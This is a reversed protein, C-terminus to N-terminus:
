GKKKVTKLLARLSEISKDVAALKGLEAAHVPLVRAEQLRKFEHEEKKTLKDNLSKVLLDHFRKEKETLVDRYDAVRRLIGARFRAAGKENLKVLDRKPVVDEVTGEGKHLADEVYNTLIYLPMRKDIARLHGALKTGEYTVEGTTSLKQDIIFAVTNPDALFKDYSSLKPLPALEQVKLSMVPDKLLRTLALRNSRRHAPVEDVLYIINEKM